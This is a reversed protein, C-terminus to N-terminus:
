EERREIRYKSIPQKGLTQLRNRSRKKLHVIKNNLGLFFIHTNVTRRGVRFMKPDQGQIAGVRFM